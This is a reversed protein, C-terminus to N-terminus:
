QPVEWVDKFKRVSYTYNDTAYNFYVNKEDAVGPYRWDAGRADQKGHELWSIHWDWGDKSEVIVPHFPASYPSFAIFYPPKGNIGTIMKSGIYPISDLPYVKSRLHLRRTHMDFVSLADPTGDSGIVLRGPLATVATIRPNWKQQESVAPFLKTWSPNTAWINRSYLINGPEDGYVVWALNQYPDLEVSHTHWATANEGEYVLRWTTGYDQSYFVKRAGNTPGQPGYEGLLIARGNIAVQAQFTRSAAGSGFESAGIVESTQGPSHKSSARHISGDAFSLLMSDDDLVWVGILNEQYTHLETVSEWEDSSKVLTKAGSSGLPGKTGYLAKENADYALVSGGATCIQLTRRM